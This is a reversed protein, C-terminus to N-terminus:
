KGYALDAMQKAMTKDFGESLMWNIYQSKDMEKPPKKDDSDDNNNNQNNSDDEDSDDSPQSQFGLPLKGMPILIEDGGEPVPPYGIEARAENITLLGATMDARATARASERRPILASVSKLDPVIQIAKAANKGMPDIGNHYNIFNSLEEYYSCVTPIVTEEYLALKAESMNNYTSSDPLGLLHPPFGFAHCIDRASSDKGNLWDMDTPSMGVNQWAMDYNLVPIKGANKSGAIRDNVERRLQQLQEKTLMSATETKDRITLVGPPRASNELLKKNWESAENHQDVTMAAAAIPSLGYLDNLPHFNKIHLIESQETDPEIPYHYIQGYYTYLYEFPEQYSTVMITVRDPRLLKLEMIRGTSVVNGWVYMNGSILKHSIANRVFTKGGEKANPRKLLQLIPNKEQIEGNVLVQVPIEACAEAITTICLYAIVNKIYAERSFNDYNGTFWNARGGLKFFESLAGWSGSNKSKMFNFLNSFKM